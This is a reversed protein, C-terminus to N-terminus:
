NFSSKLRKLGEKLKERPCAVNMRLYNSDGYVTGPMIGVKGINVLRDQMVEMTMNVHTVDIWALYTASPKVFNFEPLNQDLFKKVIDMNGNLYNVLQTVYNAGDDGYAAMQAYMGLISVSSLANKEKLEILFKKRLDPDPILIYSGILGPTNFTKSSSCCLVVNDTTVETIPVYKFNPYVIDKHIDDSILFVNNEKCMVALRKLELKTFVKGTPNHPNTLIFIRTNEQSLITDLSDWDIQYNEQASGLRIPVLIRQNSEVTKYFADYMPTFTAIVQGPQSNMRIFTAISFVVSPSYVIWDSKITVSNSKEFWNIISNKYDNHNWRSYGYIPHDIRERLASQVSDPVKFDTDSISFPLIDNRGFRDEIYDWQTSYTNKRDIVEDFNYKKM